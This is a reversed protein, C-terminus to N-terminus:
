GECEGLTSSPSNKAHTKLVNREGFIYFQKMLLSRMEESNVFYLIVLMISAPTFSWKASQVQTLGKASQVQILGKARCSEATARSQHLHPLM